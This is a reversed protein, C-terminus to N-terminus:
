ICIRSCIVQSCPKGAPNRTNGSKFPFGVLLMQIPKKNQIFYNINKICQEKGTVAQPKTDASPDIGHKDIDYPIRVEDLVTYISRAISDQKKMRKAILFGAFVVISFLGAFIVIKQKIM